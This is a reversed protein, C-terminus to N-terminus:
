KTSQQRSRSMVELASRNEIRFECRLMNSAAKRYDPLILIVAIPDLIPFLAVAFQIFRWAFISSPLQFLPWSWSLITPILNSVIEFDNSENKDAQIRQLDLVGLVIYVMTSYLSIAYLTIESIYGLTRVFTTGKTVTMCIMARDYISLGTKEFFVDEFDIRTNNDCKLVTSYIFFVILGHVFIYIFLYMKSSKTDLTNMLHPRCIAIYRYIFHVELIGYTLGICSVKIAMIHISISTSAVSHTHETTRMFIKEIPQKFNPIWSRMTKRYKSKTALVVSSFVSSHSAIGIMSFNGYKQLEVADFMVIFMCFVLPFVILVFPCLTLTFLNISANLHIRYTQRSMLGRLNNLITFTEYAFYLANVFTIIMILCFYVTVHIMAPTSTDYLEFTPEFFLEMCEPYKERMIQYKRPFPTYIENMFYLTAFPYLYTIIVLLLSIKSISKKSRLKRTEEYRYYFCQLCAPVEWTVFFGYFLMLAHTSINFYLSFTSQSYGALLPFNYWPWTFISMDTEVVFSIFQMFSVCFKYTRKANPDHWIFYSVLCNLPISICEIVELIFKHFWPPHYSCITSM